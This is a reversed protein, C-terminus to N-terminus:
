AQEHSGGVHKYVLRGGGGREEGCTGTKRKLQVQSVVLELVSQGREVRQEGGESRRRTIREQTVMEDDELWDMADREESKDEM